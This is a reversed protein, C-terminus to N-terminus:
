GMWQKTEGRGPKKLEDNLAEFAGFVALVSGVKNYVYSDNM